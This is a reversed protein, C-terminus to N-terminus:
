TKRDPGAVPGGLCCAAAGEAWSPRPRTPGALCRVSEVPAGTELTFDTKGQGVPMHLPLDRNTCLTTLALQHLDARYPAENGDM